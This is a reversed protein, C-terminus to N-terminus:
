HLLHFQELIRGSSTDLNSWANFLNVRASSQRQSARVLDRQAENLRVLSTKGVSYEKEVLDRNRQVLTANENQLLVQKQANRVTVIDNQIQAAVNLELEQLLQQVEKERHRAEAVRARDRGGSYFDYTLFVGVAGATDDDNFHLDQAHSNEVGGSLVVKPYYAGQASKIAAQAQQLALKQQRLDPRLRDADALYDALQPSIMQIETETELAALHTAPPFVGDAMGTLAAITTKAVEFYRQADNLSAQAANLQVKFNLVDSLPGTGARQRIKAEEALRGNFKLDAKVIDIQERALLANYYAGAVANLVLRRAEGLAAESQGHGFKAQALNFYRQFGDFLLWSASLGGSYIDQPNDVEVQFGFLRASALNVQYDRDSAWARQVGATASLMPHYASWAQDIRTLAQQVRETAAVLSPRQALAMKQATRLDLTTQNAAAMPAGALGIGKMCIIMFIVVLVHWVQRWRLNM